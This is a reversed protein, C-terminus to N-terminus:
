LLINLGIGFCFTFVSVTYVNFSFSYSVISIPCSPYFISRNIYIYIFFYQQIIRAIPTFCISQITCNISAKLLRSNHSINACWVM